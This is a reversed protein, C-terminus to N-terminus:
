PDFWFGNAHAIFSTVERLKIKKGIKSGNRRIGVVSNEVDKLNLTRRYSDNWLRCRLSLTVVLSLVETFINRDLNADTVPCDEGRERLSGISNSYAMLRLADTKISEPNICLGDCYEVKMTMAGALMHRAQHMPNTIGPRFSLM